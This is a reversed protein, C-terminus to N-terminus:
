SARPPASPPRNALIAGLDMGQDSIQVRLDVPALWDRQWGLVRTQLAQNLQEDILVIPGGLVYDQFPFTGDQASALDLTNMSVNLAMSDYAVLKANADQVLVNSGGGEILDRWTPTATVQAADVLCTTAAFPNQAPRIWVQVSFVPYRIGDHINQLGLREWGGRVTTRFGFTPAAIGPYMKAWDRPYELSGATSGDPLTSTQQLGVFLSVEVAGTLTWVDAFYSLSRQASAVSSNFVFGAGGSFTVRLSRGGSRWYIPNGELATAVGTLGRTWNSVINGSGSTPTPDRLTPNGLLNTAGTAEPRKITGVRIGLPSQGSVQPREVYSLAGGDVATLRYLVKSAVSPPVQGAPVSVQVEQAGADSALVTFDALSPALVLKRLQHGVFQGDFGIPGPGGAPDTLTLWLYVGDVRIGTIQWANQDMTATGVDSDTAGFGYVRTVVDATSRRVGLSMLGGGPRLRVPQASAGIQQLFDLTYRLNTANYRVRFELSGPVAEALKRCAALPSDEEYVISVQGSYEQAGMAWFGQGAESLAPIIYLNVHQTITLGSAQFHYTKSGDPHVRRCLGRNSIDHLMGHATLAVTLDGRDDQELCDEIRREVIAGSSHLARLVRNPRANHEDPGVIAGPPILALPPTRLAPNDADITLRLESTGDLNIAESCERWLGVVAVRAGGAAELDSWLELREITSM